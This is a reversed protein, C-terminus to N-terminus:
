KEGTYKEDEHAKKKKRRMRMYKETVKKGRLQGRRDNRDSM